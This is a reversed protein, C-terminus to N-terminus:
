LLKSGSNEVNMHGYSWCVPIYFVNLYALNVFAALLGNIRSYALTIAGM